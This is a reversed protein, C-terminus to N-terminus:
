SLETWTHTKPKKALTAKTMKAQGDVQDGIVISEVQFTNLLLQSSFNFGYWAVDVLAQIHCFVVTFRYFILFLLCTPLHRASYHHTLRCSQQQHTLTEEPSSPFQHSSFARFTSFLTQFLIDSCPIGHINQLHSPLSSYKKTTKISISVM